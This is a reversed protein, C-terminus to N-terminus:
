HIWLKFRKILKQPYFVISLLLYCGKLLFNRNLLYRRYFHIHYFYAKQRLESTRIGFLEERLIFTKQITEYKLRSSASSPHIRMSYLVEGLNAFKYGHAILRAFLGYDEAPVQEQKYVYEKLIAAKIMVTPHQLGHEGQMYAKQVEEPGVPFNSRNLIIATKSHFYEVNCGVGSLDPNSKLFSYQKEIRSPHLIDDPDARMIYEANAAAIGKNLANAFGENKESYIFTAGPLNEFERLIQRSDDTSGDDVVIIQAPLITSALISQIFESLFSGNNYNAAVLSVNVTKQEQM